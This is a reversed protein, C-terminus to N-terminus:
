ELTHEKLIELFSKVTPAYENALNAKYHKKIM